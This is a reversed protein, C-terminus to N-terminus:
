AEKQGTRAAIVIGRSKRWLMIHGSRSRPNVEENQPEIKLAEKLDAQM